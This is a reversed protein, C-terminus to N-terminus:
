IYGRTKLYALLTGESLDLGTDKCRLLIVWEYKNWLHIFLSFLSCQVRKGTVNRKKMLAPPIQPRSVLDVPFKM